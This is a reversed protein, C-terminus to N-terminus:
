FMGVGSFATEGELVFGEPEKEPDWEEQHSVIVEVNFHQSQDQLLAICGHHMGGGPLAALTRVLLARYSAM